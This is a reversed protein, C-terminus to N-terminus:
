FHKYWNKGLNPCNRPKMNVYKGRMIGDVDFIGLKIKDIKNKKLKEIVPHM